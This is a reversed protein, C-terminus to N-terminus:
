TRRSKIRCGARKTTPYMYQPSPIPFPKKITPITSLSGSALLPNRVPNPAIDAVLAFFPGSSIGATAGFGLGIALVIPFSAVFAFGVSSVAQGILTIDFSLVLLCQWACANCCLHPPARRAALVRGARAAERGQRQRHWGAACVGGIGRGGGALLCVDCVGGVQLQRPCARGARRNRHQFSRADLHCCCGHPECHLEFGSPAVRDQLYYEQAGAGPRLFTM